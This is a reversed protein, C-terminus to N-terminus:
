GEQSPAFLVNLPSKSPIFERFDKLDHYAVVLKWGAKSAMEVLENLSYVRFDFSFEGEFLLDKGEKRYFSWRNFLRSRVPDFRPSEMVLFEGLDNAVTPHGCEGARREVLDKSVTNLIALAGGERVIRRVGKLLELDTKEDYYGLLTTWIMYVFDFSGEVFEELKTADGVLFNMRKLVGASQARRRGDEIFTPSLDLCTICYGMEALPIAVRGNGCGLELVRKPQLDHKKLLEAIMEAEKRGSEWRYNFVKLFLNAKDVFVEKVWM